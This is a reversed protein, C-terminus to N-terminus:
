GDNTQRGKQIFSNSQSIEVKGSIYRNNTVSKYDIHSAKYSWPISIELTENINWRPRIINKHASLTRM